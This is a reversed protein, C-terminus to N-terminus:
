MIKMEALILLMAFLELSAIQRAHIGPSTTSTCNRSKFDRDGNENHTHLHRDNCQREKSQLQETASKEKENLLNAFVAFKAARQEPLHCIYVRCPSASVSLSPSVLSVTRRM